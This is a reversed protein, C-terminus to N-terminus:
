STVSILSLHKFEPKSHQFLVSVSSKKNRMDSYKQLFPVLASTPETAEEPQPFLVSVSFTNINNM